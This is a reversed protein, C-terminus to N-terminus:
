IGVGFTMCMALDSLFGVARALNKRYILASGFENSSHRIFCFDAFSFKDFLIGKGVSFFL